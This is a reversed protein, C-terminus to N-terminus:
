IFHICGENLGARVRHLSTSRYYSRHEDWSRLISYFYTRLFSPPPDGNIIVYALNLRAVIRTAASCVVGHFILIAVLIGYTAGASFVVAGDSGVTIATTIMQASLEYHM